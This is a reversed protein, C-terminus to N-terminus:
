SRTPVALVDCPLTMLFLEANSGITDQHVRSRGHTGAVMLDPWEFAKALEAAVAVATKSYDADDVACLIKKDDAGGLDRHARESVTHESFPEVAHDPRNRAAGFQEFVGSILCSQHQTSIFLCHVDDAKLFIL